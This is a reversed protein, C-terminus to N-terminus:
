LFKRSTKKGDCSFVIKKDEVMTELHVNKGWLSVVYPLTREVYKLDLETGEYQHILYLEGARNFDGDKVMLTPFGGNVKSYVLQERINEWSKDTIKWEPGKKEFIYLDLDDVLEKTLYNRLFSIDSDLERVEFMKERGKGPTRGFREREEATPNDWRREIDEFIKLGLYYPNLSHRSPIVVSSNLKAFEITEESTLDLERIIRQHWYSAWGENMIKTELQPWFYLMEDRLMTLIDRQWDQLITSYEEIFWVIDKEPRPPFRKLEAAKAEAEANAAAVAETDLAWIDEYSSALPPSQKESRAMEKSSMEIYRKKDLQYPKILTPDVHEQIALIADIFKEVADSGYLMEYQHIRDATASMSEVMNRNSVGFRANNKFFDCHALVHAVILKNQILSNGDLLFAYCPNSNIVLEYIKSLGFDYQMKMKNFTKGFSWHSFRTPMGYAGFTYIIDAPCIEYRMQYFDLGFGQAIETIEDIARELARIEEQKM